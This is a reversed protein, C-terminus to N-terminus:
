TSYQNAKTTTENHVKKEYLIGQGKFNIINM